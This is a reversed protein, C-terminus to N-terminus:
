FQSLHMINKKFKMLNISEDILDKSTIENNKLLSHLEAINKEMYNM